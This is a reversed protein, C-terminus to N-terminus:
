QAVRQRYISELSTFAVPMKLWNSLKKSEILFLHNGCTEEESGLCFQRLISALFSWCITLISAILLLRIRKPCESDQMVWLQLNETKDIQETGEVLQSVQKDYRISSETCWLSYDSESTIGLYQFGRLYFKIDNM